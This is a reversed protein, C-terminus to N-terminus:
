RKKKSFIQKVVDKFKKKSTAGERLKDLDEESRLKRQNEGFGSAIIEEFGLREELSLQKFKEMNQSAKETSSLRRNANKNLTNTPSNDPTGSVGSDILSDNSTDLSGRSTSSGLVRECSLNSLRRNVYQQRVGDSSSRKQLGPRQRPVWISEPAECQLERTKSGSAALLDNDSHSKDGVAGEKEEMNSEKMPLAVSAPRMQYAGRKRRTNRHTMYPSGEDPFSPLTLEETEKITTVDHTVNESENTRDVELGAEMIDDTSLAPSPFPSTPTEDSNEGSVLPNCCAVIRQTDINDCM